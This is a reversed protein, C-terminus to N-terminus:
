STNACLISHWVGFLFTSERKLCIGTRSLVNKYMRIIPEQTLLIRYEFAWGKQLNTLCKSANKEPVYLLLQDFFRSYHLDHFIGTHHFANAHASLRSRGEGRNAMSGADSFVKCFRKARIQNFSSGLYLVRFLIRISWFLADWREALILIRGALKFHFGKTVVHCVIIRNIRSVGYSPIGHRWIILKKLNM